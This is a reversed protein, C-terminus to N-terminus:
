YCSLEGKIYKLLRGMIATLYSREFSLTAQAMALSIGIAPRDRDYAPTRLIM